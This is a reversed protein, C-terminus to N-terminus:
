RPNRAPAKVGYRAYEADINPDIERSRDLDADAAEGLASKALGRVFLSHAASPSLKLAGDLDTIAERYQGLRFRVFGRSDLTEADAPRLALSADCDALAAPLEKGWQARSWCRENLFTARQADTLTTSLLADLARLSDDYRGARKYTQAERWLVMSKDPAIGLAQDYDTRAERFQSDDVHLDARALLALVDSSNLRLAADFDKLALDDKRMEYYAVGRDYLHKSATPELRSAETFDAIALDYKRAHLFGVGRLNYEAATKPQPTAEDDPGSGRSSATGRVELDFAHLDRLATRASAAESFPVEAAASSEETVVSVLAQNKRVTRVYRRAAITKDVDDTAGVLTFGDGKNPLTLDVTWRSYDPFAVAFPADANPGPDRKFAADFGLNSEPIDLSRYGGEKAWPVTASGDLTLKMVHRFDDFAYNVDRGEIWPKQARFRERIGRLADERGEQDFTARWLVASEGRFIEELHVAAPADFGGSADLKEVFEYAPEAFPRPEVRVLDSSGERIPLVWHFDPAPIDDLDRDGSRTGDLWYVKGAITARVFVHDFFQLNPLRQDLGDGGATSVLAPEAEVGLGHLLTLLLVTKGKCDGFRRSWTLDAAAPSYGGFNMGLFVYHVQDQVLRLAAEARSKQDIHERRIAEIQARLPSQAPVVEAKAYLPALLASVETWSQFQSLQLQGVAQFRAPADNPPKPADIDTQDIELATGNADRKVTPPPMGTTIRWRLPKTDPWEARVHYRAANGVFSMAVLGQSRGQLVPDKHTMSVAIDVVDGVQLGEPQISATLWGDLAGAELGTERRLVTVKKGAGILDITRGDRVIAFQHFTLSDTDPNWSLALSAMAKLGEPSVIKVATHAYIEDGDPGFHSQNDILLTQLAAEGPAAKAPIPVPRVWAAPPAYRPTDAAAAVGASLAAWLVVMTKLM